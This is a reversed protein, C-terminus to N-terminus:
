PVVRMTPGRHYAALEGPPLLLVLSHFEYRGVDPIDFEQQAMYQFRQPVLQSQHTAVLESVGSEADLIYGEIRFPVGKSALIEADAGSLQFNMEVKLRKESRGTTPEVVCLQVDGIELRTGDPELPAPPTAAETEVKTIIQEVAVPLHARELIWNVWPAPDRGQFVEERDGNARDCVTTRLVPEPDGDTTLDFSVWFVADHERATPGSLLEKPKEALETAEEPLRPATNELKAFERAQRAWKAQDIFAPPRNVGHERLAASVQEATHESLYQTLDDYSHIGAEYLAEATKRAIGDIRMLLDAGLERRHNMPAASKQDMAM